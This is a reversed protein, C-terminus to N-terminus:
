KDEDLVRIYIIRTDVAIYDLIRGVSKNNHSESSGTIFYRVLSCSYIITIIINSANRDNTAFVWIITISDIKIM